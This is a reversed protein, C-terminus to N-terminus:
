EYKQKQIYAWLEESTSISKLDDKTLLNVITKKAMFCYLLPDKVFSEKSHGHVVSSREGYFDKFEKDMKVRSEYDSGNIFAYSESLNAVISPSILGKENRFLLAEFACAAESCILSQDNTDFSKGLWVVAAMIRKEMETQKQSSLIEWIRQNGNSADSFSPHDISIPIDKRFIQFNSSSVNNSFQYYSVPYTRFPKSDVYYREGKVFAMVRIAYVLNEMMEDTVSSAYVNDPADVSYLVYVFNTEDKAESDIQAKIFGGGVKAGSGLLNNQSLYDWLKGKKVFTFSGYKVADNKLSLGYIRRVNSVTNIPLQSITANITAIDFKNEFLLNQALKQFTQLSIKDAGAIQSHLDSFLKNYTNIRDLGFIVITPRLLLDNKNQDEKKPLYSFQFVNGDFPGNPEKLFKHIEAITEESKM